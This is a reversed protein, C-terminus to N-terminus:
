AGARQAFHWAMNALPETRAGAEMARASSATGDRVRGAIGQTICALRFMNYSFYWDLQPLGDRKTIKCY